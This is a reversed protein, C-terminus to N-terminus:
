LMRFASIDGSVSPHDLSIGTDPAQARVPMSRSDVITGVPL